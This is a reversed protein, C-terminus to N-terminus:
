FVFFNCLIFMYMIPFFYTMMIYSYKMYFNLYKFSFVEMMSIYVLMYMSYGGVLIFSFMLIFLCMFSYMIMSSFVMFESIVMVSIPFSMNILFFIYFWFNLIMSNLSIGSFCMMNRTKLSVYLVGCLFFLGSSCFSHIYSSIYSSSLGMYSLTLFSILSFGMHSVSSYAVLLKIDLSIFCIFCSFLVGMLSISIVFILFLLDLYYVLFFFQNLGHYGMKLMVGALIVSGETSSEVHAKPLWMHSFYMPFKVLFMFFIFIFWIFKMDIFYLMFFSDLGFLFFMYSLLMLPVSTFLSYMIMYVSAQLREIQYGWGNILFFVLLILIEFLFFFLLLNDSCFFFFFFLFFLNLFVLNMSMVVSMTYLLWVFMYIWFLSYINIILMSTNYMDFNKYMILVLSMFCMYVMYTYRFFFLLM